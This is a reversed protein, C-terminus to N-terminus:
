RGFHTGQKARGMLSLRICVDRPLPDVALSGPPHHDFFEQIAYSFVRESSEEGIRFLTRGNVHPWTRIHRFTFGYYGWRSGPKARLATTGLLISDDGAMPGFHELMTGFKRSPIYQSDWANSIDLVSIRLDPTRARIRDIAATIAKPQTLEVQEIFIKGEKAMKSMKSFAGDDLLYNAGEFYPFPGKPPEVLNTWPSNRAQSNWWEHVEPRLLHAKWQPPLNSASIRRQWEQPTAHFWLRVYDARSDAIRLLSANIENFFIVVPDRDLQILHTANSFAAGTPGRLTGVSVYAGPRSQRWIDMADAPNLENPVFFSNATTAPVRQSPRHTDFWDANVRSALLGM